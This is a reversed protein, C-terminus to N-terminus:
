YRKHIDTFSLTTNDQEKKRRYCIYCEKIVLMSGRFVIKQMVFEVDFLLKNSDAHLATMM